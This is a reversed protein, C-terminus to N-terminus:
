YITFFYSSHILELLIIDINIVIIIKITVPTWVSIRVKALETMMASLRLVQVLLMPGM